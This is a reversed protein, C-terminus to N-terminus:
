NPVWHPDSMVEQTQQITAEITTMVQEEKLKFTSPIAGTLIMLPIKSKLSRYGGLNHPPYASPSIAILAQMDDLAVQNILSLGYYPDGTCVGSIADSHWQTNHAVQHLDLGDQNNWTSRPISYVLMQPLEPDSDASSDCVAEAHLEIEVVMVLVVIDNSVLILHFHGMSVMQDQDSDKIGASAFTALDLVMVLTAEYNLLSIFGFISLSLSGSCYSERANLVLSSLDFINGTTFWLYCLPYEKTFVSGATFWPYLAISSCGHGYSFLRPTHNVSTRLYRHYVVPGSCHSERTNLVLSLACASDATFWLYCPPYEKNCSQMASPALWSALPALWQSLVGWKWAGM